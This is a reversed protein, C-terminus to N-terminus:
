RKGLGVITEVIVYAKEDVEEIRGKIAVLSGEEYYFLDGKSTKNWSMLPIFDKDKTEYLPMYGREVELLRFNKEQEVKLLVGILNVSNLM